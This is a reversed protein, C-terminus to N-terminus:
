NIALKFSDLGLIIIGVVGGRDVKKPHHAVRQLTKTLGCCNLLNETCPSSHDNLCYKIACDVLVVNREQDFLISAFSHNSLTFISTQKSKM